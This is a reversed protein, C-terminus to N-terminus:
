VDPAALLEDYKEQIEDRDEELNSITEKLLEPLRKLQLSSIKVEEEKLDIMIQKLEDITDLM